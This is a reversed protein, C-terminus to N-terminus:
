RHLRLGVWTNDVKAEVLDFGHVTHAEVVRNQQTELLGSLIIIGGQDCANYADKSMKILPLALINALILDYPAYKNVLPASYGDGCEFQINPTANIDAHHRAVRISEVDNDIGIIKANPWLKQAAIALVGSGCGMDLINKFNQNQLATLHELCLKTTSHEGSGFATAADIQLAIKDTKIQDKYHTGYICFDGIDMPPFSTYVEELWNKDEAKKSTVEIISFDDLDMLSSVLHIRGILEDLNPSSYSFFDFVFGTKDMNPSLGHSYFDDGVALVLDLMQDRHYDCAINIQTHYVSQQM